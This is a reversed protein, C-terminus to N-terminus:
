KRKEERRVGKKKEGSKESSRMWGMMHRQKEKIVKSLKDQIM